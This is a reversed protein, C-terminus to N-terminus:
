SNNVDLVPSGVDDLAVTVEDILLGASISLNMKVPGFVSSIM